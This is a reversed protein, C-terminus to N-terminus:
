LLRDRAIMRKFMTDDEFISPPPNPLGGFKLPRAEGGEAQSNVVTEAHNESSQRIERGEAQSGVEIEAHNESLQRAERRTRFWESTRRRTVGNVGHILHQSIDAMQQSQILSDVWAFQDFFVEQQTDSWLQTEPSPNGAM